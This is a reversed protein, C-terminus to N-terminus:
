LLRKMGELFDEKHSASVPVESSDSMEIYGGDAKVYKSVEAMNILHSNHVRLFHHEKLLHEYEKLNKSTTLKRGDKFYFHTYPGKAECRLVQSIEAYIIGDSTALGIKKGSAPVRFDQLFKQLTLNEHNQSRKSIAKGIAAKLEEMDIPKLLYDLAGYKIADIAYNKYATTFIVEFDLNDLQPFIDFCKNPHLEIDLLIIDPQVEKILKVAAPVSEAVGAIQVEPCFMEVMKRLMERSKAEDEVIITKLKSM